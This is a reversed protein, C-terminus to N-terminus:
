RLRKLRYLEFAVVDHDMFSQILELDYGAKEVTHFFLRKGFGGWTKYESYSFNLDRGYVVYLPGEELKATRPYERIRKPDQIFAQLQSYIGWEGTICERKEAACYEILPYIAQTTLLNLEPASNYKDLYLKHQFLLAGLFVFFLAVGIRKWRALLLASLLILWPLLFFFHWFSRARVSFFVVVLSLLIQLALFYIARNQATKKRVAMFLGMGLLLLWSLALYNVEPPRALFPYYLSIGSLLNQIHARLQFFRHSFYFSLESGPTFRWYFFWCAIFVISVSIPLLIKKRQEPYLLLASVCFGFIWWIFNVKNFLGVLFIACLALPNAGNLFLLVGSAQLLFEIVVPGFDMKTGYIFSPNAILLFTAMNASRLDGMKKALKHFVVLAFACLLIMPLRISWVSVGFLKFIPWYIWAKLAGVYPMLYLPLDGIKGYMFNGDIDGLAGNVFYLEDYHLGPYQIRFIAFGLYLAIAGILPLV